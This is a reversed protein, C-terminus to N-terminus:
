AHTHLTYWVCIASCCKHQIKPQRSHLFWKSLVIIYIDIDYTTAHYKTRYNAMFLLMQNAMLIGFLTFRFLIYFCCCYCCIYLRTHHTCICVRVCMFSIRSLFPDYFHFSHFLNCFSIFYFLIFNETYPSVKKRVHISQIQHHHYCNALYQLRKKM